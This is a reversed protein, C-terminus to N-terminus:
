FFGQKNKNYSTLINKTHRYGNLMMHHNERGIGSNKYGGFSAGAPYVHYCNVWVRGAEIGKSVEQLQHVDRSWVASGLGFQTDNAIELAEEEDKFTTVALVPGFIEEQFIRM